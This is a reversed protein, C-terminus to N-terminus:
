NLISLYWKLHLFALHFLEVLHVEFVECQKVVGRCLKYLNCTRFSIKNRIM